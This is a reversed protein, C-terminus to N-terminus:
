EGSPAATRSSGNEATIIVTAGCVGFSTARKPALLTADAPRPSTAMPM